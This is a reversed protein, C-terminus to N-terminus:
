NELTEVISEIIVLATEAMKNKKEDLCPNIEVIELAILKDLKCAGLLIQNAEEPSLGNPVPTGTGHSTLEPDMSDVDFSVYLYDVESFKKNLEDILNDVGFQRVDEVTYNKINFQNILFDEEIETDRVAIYILNEPQLSNSKLKNWKEITVGDVDNRKCALNDFGLATALPMGHMNGSPTSYPTHLDAHADIWLVGIKKNPYFRSISSITAGASSHDGAIIIPFDKATLADNIESEVSHFVSIIGDINKAFSEEIQKDLLHNQDPIIRIERDKFLKSKKARAASLIAEPGLSAGRTGAGLESPNFIFRLKNSMFLEM